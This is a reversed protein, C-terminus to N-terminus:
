NNKLVGYVILEQESGDVGYCEYWYERAQLATTQALTLDLLILNDSTSVTPSIILEGKRRYYLKCAISDYVSFDFETGDDNLIEIEYDLTSKGQYSELDLRAGKYTSYGM